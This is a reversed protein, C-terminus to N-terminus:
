LIYPRLFDTTVSWEIVKADFLIEAYNVRKSLHMFFDKRKERNKPANIADIDLTEVNVYVDLEKNLAVYDDIFSETILYDKM